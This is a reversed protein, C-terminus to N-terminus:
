PVRRTDVRELSRPLESFGRLREGHPPEAPWRGRGGLVLPIGQRCCAEGLRRAQDMLLGPDRSHESASVAVMNVAGSDILECAFHIPTKGGAWTANWGAERLCLELLGLGLTHEDGEAAMLFCRPGGDPM